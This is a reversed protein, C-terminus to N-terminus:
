QEANNARSGSHGGGSESSSQGNRNGSQAGANGPQKQGKWSANRVSQDNARDEELKNLKELITNMKDNLEDVTVPKPEEIPIFNGGQVYIQGNADKAVIYARALNPDGDPVIESSGNALNSAYARAGDFGNVSHIQSYQVGSYNMQPTPLNNGPVQPNNIVTRQNAFIPLYPNAYPNVLDAM